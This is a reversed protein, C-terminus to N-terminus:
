RKNQTRILSVARKGVVQPRYYASHITRAKLSAV